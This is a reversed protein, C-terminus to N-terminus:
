KKGKKRPHKRAKKKAKAKPCGTVAIKTSQTIQAGNQGTLTTPMVLSQGCFSGKAKAALNSGLASHSGQPLSLEFSSIPADPIANFASSTIGKKISVSGAVQLTVGEGQLVMVVDPFAAGGHSVLYVPGAVAVALIPTTATAIGINSGAPCSAPNANFVAATCAQQITTLRSPLQKPLSVAVKGLNAQGAGSTVKVDLSAGGKKSSAAKTSVKFSPKFPLIACNAAQFRSSVNTTSGQTSTITGDVAFPECSTPNFTFSPRDITVNVTKLRLPVGKVIRPLPDSLVTIQATHPDVFVRARVVVTGLDFPGAKAPVVVSLGFPAGSYPGTLFVKGGVYFPDSGAGAGATTHGILSEDGCTGQAAQPEPCQIVGKLVGLLGPPLTVAIGAPTQEGDRRSLTTMFPSFAGAQGNATGATFAPAFAGGGPCAVDFGALPEVTKGSWGTMTSVVKEPGCTDSMALPARPGNKLHLMLSSFPQQPINDFTTTLRGTVPDAKVAGVSKVDVGREDDRLELALRFMEGSAPDQSAQSRVYVAGELPKELLPTRLEATGIKSAGPCAAPESSGLHLETDTCADLGDASSPNISLGEPLMVTASRLDSEALGDPNQNQPLGVTVDLGTPSDTANETPAVSLSPEFPVRDCGTFPGIPFAKDHFVQPHEWTNTSLGMEPAEPTCSTPTRLLALRPAATPCLGGDVGMQPGVWIGCGAREGNHSPDAPVGWFTLTAGSFALTESSDLSSVTVGYDGANRISASLLVAVGQVDFGFAAPVGPQPIMDYIPALYPSNGKLRVVGVQSEPPCAAVQENGHAGPAPFTALQAPTCRVPVASPDGVLGAPLSGLVDKFREQPAFGIGIGSSTLSPIEFSTTVAWPHSGARTAPSGAEDESLGGEWSLISFPPPTGTARVAQEFSAPPAGGGSVSITNALLGSTGPEMRAAVFFLKNERPQIADNTTCTLAATDECSWHLWEVEFSLSEFGQFNPSTGTITLGPSMTDILTIQGSTATDGVNRVLFTFQANQGPIAYTPGAADVVKLEPGSALATTTLLLVLVCMMLAVTVVCGIGMRKNPKSQM